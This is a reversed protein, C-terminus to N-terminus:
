GRILCCHCHYHLPYYKNNKLQHHGPKERDVYTQVLGDGLTRSQVKLKFFILNKKTPFGANIIIRQKDTKRTEENFCMELKSIRTFLTSRSTYYEFQLETSFHDYIIHNNAKYCRTNSSSRGPLSGNLTLVKAQRRVIVCM